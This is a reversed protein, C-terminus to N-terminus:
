GRAKRGHPDMAFGHGPVRLVLTRDGHDGIPPPVGWLAVGPDEARLDRELGIVNFVLTLPDARGKSLLMTRPAM